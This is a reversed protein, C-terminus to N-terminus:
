LAMVLIRPRAITGTGGTVMAEMQFTNSGATLSISRMVAPSGLDDASGSEHQAALSDQAATTTAGSVSFAVRVSQGATDNSVRFASVFVLANTGTTLTVSPFNVAPAGLSTYSTSTIAQSTSADSYNEDYGVSRWALGNSADSVLYSGTGPHALRSGMSNAADAYVLDGAAAATAAATELLNDRVHTNMIGATVTESTVWTRPATWAM